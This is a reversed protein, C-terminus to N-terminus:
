TSVPGFGVSVNSERRGHPLTRSTDRKAGSGVAKENRYPFLLSPSQRQVGRVAAPLFSPALSEWLPFGPARGPEQGPSVWKQILGMRVGGTTHLELDPVPEWASGLCHERSWAILSRLSPMDLPFLPSFAPSCERLLLGQVCRVLCSGLQCPQTLCSYAWSRPAACMRRLLAMGDTVYGHWGRRKLRPPTPPTLSSAVTRGALCM